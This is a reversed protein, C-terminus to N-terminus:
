GKGTVTGDSKLHYANINPCNPFKSDLWRNYDDAWRKMAIEMSKKWVAPDNTKDFGGTGNKAPGEPKARFNHTTPADKAATGCKCPVVIAAFYVQENHMDIGKAGLKLIADLAKLPPVTEEVWDKVMDKLGDKLADLMTDASHDDTVEMPGIPASIAPCGNTCTGRPDVHGVPSSDLYQYLNMGDVFGAPDREMWTGTVTDLDRNRFNIKGSTPDYRGGQFGYVWSYGDSRSAWTTANLVTATGYPDYDFRELVNGSADTISTVDHNADQQAYIRTAAGGNVSQDRAVMDDIYSQSWVYSSKTTTSGNVDDDEIDQWTTDYYSNIVEGSCFSLGPRRSDADYSFVEGNVSTAVM